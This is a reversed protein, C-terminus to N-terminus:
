LPRAVAEPLAAEVARAAREVAKAGGDVAAAALSVRGALGTMEQLVPLAVIVQEDEAEGTALVGAIRLTRVEGDLRVLLSAGPGQGLRAVLAAGALCAAETAPPWAGEVRWSAQLRRLAELDAGVITAVAGWHVETSDDAPAAVGAMALLLPALPAGALPGGPRALARTAEEDLTPAGGAAAPGGGAGVPAWGSGPTGGAPGPAVILNPGFRRLERSMKAGLDAEIDLMTATVTAAVTIALLALLFSPGRLSLSRFLFRAATVLRSRRDRRAESAM